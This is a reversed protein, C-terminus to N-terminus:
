PMRHRETKLPTAGAFVGYVQNPALYKPYRARLKERTEYCLHCADAYSGGYYLRHERALGAPGGRLLPGVVPHEEPRYSAVMDKLCTENLNGMLLGQCLHVCGDSDLHVRGPKALDEHSCYDFSEGPTRAAPEALRRAARGRFMVGRRGFDTPDVEQPLGRDGEREVSSAGVPIGLERAASLANVAQPSVVQDGHFCDTSITM